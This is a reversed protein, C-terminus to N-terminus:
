DVTIDDEDSESFNPQRSRQTSRQTPISTIAPRLSGIIQPSMLPRLLAPMQQQTTPLPGFYLKADPNTRSSDRRSKGTLFRVHRCYSFEFNFSSEFLFKSYCTNWLCQNITRCDM